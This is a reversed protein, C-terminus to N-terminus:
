EEKKPKSEFSGAIQGAAGAVGQVAQAISQAQQAKIQALQNAYANDNSQYQQQINDKRAEANAAIRSAADALAENNKEKAAATSEDTGGTVAQAGQAQKNRNRISEETMTLLRMADARQTADANYERDYWNQNRQRQQEVQKKMEKMAKSAKLGGFISGAAGIASGVIAGIM